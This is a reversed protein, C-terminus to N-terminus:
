VGRPRGGIRGRQRAIRKGLSRKTEGRGEEEKGKEQITDCSVRM